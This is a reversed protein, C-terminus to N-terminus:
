REGGAPPAQVHRLARAANRAASQTGQGDDGADAGQMFPCGAGPMGKYMQKVEDGRAMAACMMCASCMPPKAAQEEAGQVAAVWAGVAFVALAAVGMRRRSM